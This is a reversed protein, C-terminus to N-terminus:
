ASPQCPHECGRSAGEIAELNGVVLPGLGDAQRRDMIPANSPPLEPLGTGLRGIM